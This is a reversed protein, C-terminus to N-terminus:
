ATCLPALLAEYSRYRELLIPTKEQIVPVAAATDGDRARNGLSELEAAMSSLEDAGLLRASSKLAHVQVTYDQWNGAAAYKEIDASKGAITEHFVRVVDSFVDENGCNTMAAAIDLGFHKRFVAGASDLLMGTMDAQPSTGSDQLSGDATAEGNATAAPVSGAISDGTSGGSGAQRNEATEWGPDGEHLVLAAPLCHELLQELLRPEVPKSLYDDFGADLYQKKVDGTVNATLAICATHQNMSKEDARLRALMEPGEMGPMRHDIFIVDYKQAQAQELAAPGNEATDIQIRTQRLLGQMVTLNVPTDDVVLIKAEPAQFRETYTCLETLGAAKTEAYNGIPKWDRVQQVVSFSFTSGKGYVSQVDLRTGMAALLKRVISMGLGTGEITRNRGEEIREFPSFLKAIDAEKIGIGTDTVSFSLACQTEGTREAGIRLTG